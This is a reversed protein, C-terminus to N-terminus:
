AVEGGLCALVYRVVGGCLTGTVCAAVVLAPATAWVLPTGLVLSAVVLQGANHAIAGCVAVLRVDLGRVRVLAAMVGWALLTGAASYAMMLPSGFLFGTALVKIAAIALADRADLLELALLVVVNALGLKVGAIPVPLPIFTEAYGLVLAAAGLMGVRAWRRADAQSFPTRATTGTAGGATTGTAGGATTGTTVHGDRAM